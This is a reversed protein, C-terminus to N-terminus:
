KKRRKVVYAAAAFMAATIISVTTGTAPNKNTSTVRAFAGADATAESECVADDDYGWFDDDYDYDVGPDDVEIKDDSGFAPDFAETEDYVSVPAKESVIYLSALNMEFEAFRESSGNNYRIDAKGAIGDSGICYLGGKDNTGAENFRDPKVYIKFTLLIEGKKEPKVAVSNGFIITEGIVTIEKVASISVAFDCGGINSPIKSPDLEIIYGNGILTVMRGGEAIRSMEDASFYTGTSFMDIDKGNKIAEDIRDLPLEEDETNISNGSSGITESSGITDSSGITGSDGVSAGPALSNEASLASFLTGCLFVLCFLSSILTFLLKKM